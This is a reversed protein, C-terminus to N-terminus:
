LAKATQTNVAVVTALYKAQTEALKKASEEEEECEQRAKTVLAKQTQALDCVQEIKQCLDQAEPIECGTLARPEDSSVASQLLSNIAQQSAACVELAKKIECEGYVEECAAQVIEVNCATLTQCATYVTECAKKQYEECHVQNKLLLSEQEKVKECATQKRELFIKKNLNQNQNM